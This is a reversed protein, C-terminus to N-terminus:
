RLGAGGRLAAEVCGRHDDEFACLSRERFWAAQADTAAPGGAPGSSLQSWLTALEVDLALLDPDNCVLMDTAYNPAACDATMQETPPPVAMSRECAAVALVAALVAAGSGQMAM